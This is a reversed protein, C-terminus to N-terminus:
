SRFVRDTLRFYAIRYVQYLAEHFEEEATNDSRIQLAYVIDRAPSGKVAYIFPFDFKKRYESNLARLIDMEADELEAFGSESQESVSAASMPLRTGLDPHAKLLALQEGRSAAEVVDRMAAYLADVDAFPRKEWAREAVWPSHEFIWGLAEVFAAQPLANIQELTM